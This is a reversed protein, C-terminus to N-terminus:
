LSPWHCPLGIQSDPAMKKGEKNQQVSKPAPALARRLRVRRREFPELGGPRTATVHNGPSSRGTRGLTGVYNRLGAPPRPLFLLHRQEPQPPSSENGDRRQPVAEAHGKAHGTLRGGLRSRLVVAPEATDRAESDRTRRSGDLSESEIM